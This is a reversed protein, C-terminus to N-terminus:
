KKTIILGSDVQPLSLHYMSMNSTQLISLPHVTFINVRSIITVKAALLGLGTQGLMNLGCDSSRTQFISVPHITSVTKRPNSVAALDGSNSNQLRNFEPKGTLFPPDVLQRNSSKAIPSNHLFFFTTLPITSVASALHRRGIHGLMNIRCQGREGRGRRQEKRGM